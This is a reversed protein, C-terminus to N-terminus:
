PLLALFRARKVERAVMRQHTACVGTKKKPKIKGMGSTFHQLTETDKYNIEQINRQCFYCAM